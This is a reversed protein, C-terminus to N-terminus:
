DRSGCENRELEFEMQLDDISGEIYEISNQTHKKHEDLQKNLEVVRNRLYNVERQMERMERKHVDLSIFENPDLFSKAIEEM